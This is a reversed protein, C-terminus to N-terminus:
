KNEITEIEKVRRAHRESSSFETSLFLHIRELAENESTFQAGFAIVNANNHLRLLIATESNYAVGCRIGKFKNAAIAIGSGTTCILVGFDAKKEIIATAVKEAYIPYDTSDISDCGTDIYKTGVTDFYRKIQEKLYYGGHDAGLAITM